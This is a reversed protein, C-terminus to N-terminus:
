YLKSKSGAKERVSELADSVDNGSGKKTTTKIKYEYTNFWKIFSILGTSAGLVAGLKIITVAILSLGGDM